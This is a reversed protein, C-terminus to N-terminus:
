CEYMNSALYDCDKQMVQNVTEFCKNSCLATDQLESITEELIGGLSLLVLLPAASLGRYM